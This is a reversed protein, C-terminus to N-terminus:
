VTLDDLVQRAREENGSSLKKAMLKALFFGYHPFERLTKVFSRRSIKILRGTTECLVTATRVNNTLFSMEGMFVDAPGLHNLPVGDHYVGFTGSVIFYLHDSLEGQQFVVDGKQAIVIEEGEFGRPPERGAVSPHNVTLCAVNGTRNYSLQGGLSRALKIGRGSLAGPGHTRLTALWGEVDFGKGQDRVYFKSKASTIEWELTVKMDALIPNEQCKKEILDAISGGQALFEAKESANLGCHGHEIANQVLEALAIQLDRKRSPEILGRQVLTQAALGTYIPVTMPDNSINFVGTTKVEGAGSVELKVMLQHNNELIKLYKFLYESIQDTSLAALINLPAVLKYVRSEPGLSPDYVAILAFNQMWSDTRLTSLVPALPLNPDDVNMVVIEPLDFNLIELAEEIDSAKLLPFRRQGDKRLAKDLRAQVTPDSNLIAVLSM